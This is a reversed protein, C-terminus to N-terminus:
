NVFSTGLVVRNYDNRNSLNKVNINSFIFERGMKYILDSFLCCFFTSPVKDIDDFDLTIKENINSKIWERLLIADEIGFNEGLFDRVKVNLM